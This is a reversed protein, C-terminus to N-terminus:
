DDIFLSAAMCVKTRITSSPLRVRAAAERPLARFSFADVATQAGLALVLIVAVANVIKAM